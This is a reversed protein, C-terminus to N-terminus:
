EEPDALLVKPLAYASWLLAGAVWLLAGYNYHSVLVRPFFDGSIRTAMGLLMLTVAFKLWHNPLSLRALNGSHGFLVRTAVAFTLVAFGGVLTLHLVAIRNAPFFVTWAYGAFLLVLAIALSARLSNKHISSRYIPVQTLLYLAAIVVRVASGARNWGAAELVFSAIVVIGALLAGFAKRRWAPLPTRSEPFEHVNPLDFFRPLLFAGVGLIPLLIFGQYSLLHQLNIWFVAPEEQRSHIISLVTGTVLSVLALAVLVFGPPPVDQRKAIRAIACCAFGAIFILLLIDGVVIKGLINAIVMAAYLGLLGLVQWLRFPPASLMRPLGTGLVGFIFGGFFGHAMLHAHAVGPYGPIIGGFHLPWLLVGIVGTLVAAPFFLRFPEQNVERFAIYRRSEQM